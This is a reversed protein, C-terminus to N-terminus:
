LTITVVPAPAAVAVDPIGAAALLTTSVLLSLVFALTTNRANSGNYSNM